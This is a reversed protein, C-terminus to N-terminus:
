WKKRTIVAPNSIFTAVGKIAGAAVGDLVVPRAKVEERAIAAGYGNVAAV